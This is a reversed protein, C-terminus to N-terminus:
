QAFPVVVSLAAREPVFHKKFREKIDEFRVDNYVRLAESYDIGAVNNATFQYAFTDLDDFSRIYDGWIVRKAREFDARSLGEDNIRKVEAILREFVAEPDSSQGRFITYAYDPSADAGAAFSSNILGDDYLSRYLPSSKSALMKTLISLETYKKLLKTGGFGTDTDKFGCAFMPMSVSMERKIYPMNIEDPEDPYVREINKAPPTTKKLGADIVAAIKEPDIGGTVFIMMNSLDYFTEYCTYLNEPTIEAISERTGAINIRVPHYKYLCQMYNETVGWLPNDRYMDIEQAIIGRENDVNEQTFYPTQVFELLSALCEEVNATASFLYATMDNSTFANVNAGLAVFRSMADTGDPMAFMKHELYHAIGNPVRIKEHANPPVFESDNSGYKTAFIAYCAKYGERPMIYVECGSSHRGKYLTERTKENKVATLEM